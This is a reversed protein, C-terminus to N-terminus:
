CVYIREAARLKASSSRPNKKVEEETPVVPKRTLVNLTPSRGCVCVPCRPPCVCGKAEAQFFQKVIRDELSHFSIVVLRGAEGLLDLASRLGTKLHDMERNVAIRLAQFSRTAPHIPAPRPSSAASRLINSLQLTTSIPHKAQANRIARVIRKAYREEGFDRLITELEADSANELLEAASVPDQPNMRMDLPGNRMFSFGREPTDLQASSVGLDLLVGDIKKLNEQEVIEKIRSYNGHIIRIREGFPALRERARALADPDRDLGIVRCSAPTNKLILEAHGGDGLTGDVITSREGPNLYFLVQEALVSKHYRM